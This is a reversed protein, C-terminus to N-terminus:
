ETFSPPRDQQARGRERNPQTSLTFVLVSTGAKLASLPLWSSSYAAGNLTVSEVYPGTGEGRVILIRGGALHLVARRFMPAGLAVGGVGPVAPYFGLADWLYEGSMSGMDDNGPIGNPTIKFLEKEIRAIVEQTKWPAGAFDYAYPVVLDEENWGM